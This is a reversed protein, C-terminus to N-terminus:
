GGKSDSPLRSAAVQQLEAVGYGADRMEAASYHAARLEAASFAISLDAASYRADRLRSASFRARQRLRPVDFGGIAAVLRPLNCALLHHSSCDIVAHGERPQGTAPDSYGTPVAPPGDEDPTSIAKLLVAAGTWPSPASPAPGEALVGAVKGAAQSGAHSPPAAPTNPPAAPPETAVVDLVVLGAGVLVSPPELLVWLVNAAGRRSLALHYEYFCSEQARLCDSAVRLM